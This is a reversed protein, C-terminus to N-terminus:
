LYLCDESTEYGIDDGGYGVCEPAYSTASYTSGFTSNISQPVRFRLDGVPPQAFPVGLFFDENYTSSHVGSITGNKVTVTPANSGGYGPPFGNGHGPPHGWGHQPWGPAATAFGFLATATIFARM